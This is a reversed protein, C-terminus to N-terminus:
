YEVPPALLKSGCVVADVFNTKMEICERFTILEYKDDAAEYKRPSPLIGRDSLALGARFALKNKRPWHFQDQSINVFVM